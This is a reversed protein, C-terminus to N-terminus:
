FYYNVTFFRDFNFSNVFSLNLGTGTNTFETTEDFRAILNSDVIISDISSHSYSLNAINTELTFNKFVFYYLNLGVGGFVTWSDDNINQRFETTSMSGRDNTNESSRYSYGASGSIFFGIKPRVKFYKRVFANAGLTYSSFDTRNFQTDFLSETSRSDTGVTIGGGVALSDKLFIGYYPNFSWSFSNSENISTSGDPRTQDSQNDSTNIRLGGGILKNGKSLQSFSITTTLILVFYLYRM